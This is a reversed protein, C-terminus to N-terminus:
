GSILYLKTPDNKEATSLADYAVQTLIVGTISTGNAGAPIAIDGAGTIAQGNITKFSTAPQKGDLAAQLGTVTAIGQTGTHAARDRLQADTANATAGAAIGALKSRDATTYSEGALAIRLVNGADDYSVNIGTGQVVLGGVLDEIEEDTLSPSGGSATINLTGAGDDYVVSANGHTGAQFMAAVLDQLQEITFVASAAAKTDLQAQLGDIETIPHTHSAPPFSAPLDALDAWSPTPLNNIEAADHRHASPPFAAPKGPIDAWATVGGSGSPPDVAVLKGQADFGLMQGPAGAPLPPGGMGGEILLTIVPTETHITVIGTMLAGM